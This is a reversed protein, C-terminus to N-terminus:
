QLYFFSEIRNKTDSFGNYQVKQYTLLEERYPNSDTSYWNGEADMVAVSSVVPLKEHLDMLYKDFGTMPLGIQQKMYAGLYNLSLDIGTQEEIDYNTWILFPVRYKRENKVLSAEERVEGLAQLGAYFEQELNPQHDGFFVIVTPEDVKSFYAILEELAEDSKKMLNLFNEAEETKLEDDAISIGADIKGNRLTYSGHNQITVNFMYFPQDASGSSEHKEFEEELRAYDAEDSVYARIRGPDTMDEVGIFSDFGMYPYANERNYSTRNGPHFAIIGDYGSAKMDYTLGPVESRILNAYPVAHYPIFQMSFGSLFEFESCATGGGFTSTHATGRITNETMSHLFPLYDQNTEFDGLASLESFSENMVCIVNPYQGAGAVSAPGSSADSVAPDSSYQKGLEEIQKPDYGEPKEVRVMDLSIIFSLLYGNNRYSSTPDWSSIVIGNKKLINTGFLLQRCLVAGAILVALHVIRRKLGPGKKEPLSLVACTWVVCIVIAWLAYKGITLQYTSNVQMATRVNYLDTAMLPSSRFQNLAYNVMGFVLCCINAAAIARRFRNFICYFLWLLVALLLLNLAGRMSLFLSITQRLYLGSIKILLFLDVFPTLLFMVFLLGRQLPVQKGSRERLKKEIWAWPFWVFILGALIGMMFTMFIMLAFPKYIVGMFVHAQDMTQGDISMSMGDDFNEHCIYLYFGEDSHVDETQIRLTYQQGKDLKLDPVDQVEETEEQVKMKVVANAKLGWTRGTMSFGTLADNPVQGAELSTERLVNGDADELFVRVTGTTKYTGLNGFFLNFKSIHMGKGVFSQTVTVNGEMSIRDRSITKAAYRDADSFSDPAAAIEERRDTLKEEIVYKLKQGNFYCVHKIFIGHQFAVFVIAGLLLLSLIIKRIRTERM